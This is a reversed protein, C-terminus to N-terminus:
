FVFGFGYYFLFIHQQSQLSFIFLFWVVLWFGCSWFYIYVWKLSYYAFTKGVAAKADEM